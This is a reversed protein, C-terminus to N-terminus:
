QPSAVTLNLTYPGVTGGYNGGYHTAIITYTGTQSVTLNPILSNRNTGAVIDDNSAIETNNPDILYLLPDLTTSSATMSVSVVDGAEAEFTYLDFKNDHTISGSVIDGSSLEIANDMQAMYPITQSNGIIGGQYTTLTGSQDINFSVVYRQNFSIPVSERMVLNGAVTVFLDFMVPTADNCESQYWVEIEYSGINLNGQPWYTYYTPTGEARVCDMNGTQHLTGGSRAILNNDYIAEGFPDRVLLQLDANTNWRLMVEIDGNPLNIDEVQIPSQGDITVQESSSLTLTYVGETGAVDKGYRSAFITYTGDSPIRVSNIQSNTNVASQIDDNDAVIIGSENFLLLLTDLSGRIAQMDITVVEGAVADFQYTEFYQNNTIVGELTEGANIPRATQSLIEDATIPIVRTDTYPGYSGMYASGDNEVVFKTLHVTAFGDAPPAITGDVPDLEVGDVTVQVTFNVPQANGCAQRHYIMVEYSGTPLSGASWSATEINPPTNIIECLGNVDLGFQGGEPTTRSDWFLTGGVPDRVQLNLDDNSNWILEVTIGNFLAVQTQVFDAPTIVTIEEEQNAEDDEVTPTPTPTVNTSQTLEDAELLITYDGVAGPLPALTVFFTGSDELTAEIVAPIGATKLAQGIISGRSDSVLITLVLAPNDSEITLVIDDGSGADFTYIQATNDADFAGEVPEGNTLTDTGQASVGSVIILIVMTLLVVMRMILRM